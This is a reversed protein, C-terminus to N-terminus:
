TTTKGWDAVYVDGGAAFFFRAKVGAVRLLVIKLVELSEKM